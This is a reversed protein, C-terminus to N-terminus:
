SLEIPRQPLEIGHPLRCLFRSGGRRFSGVARGVGRAPSVSRRRGPVATVRQWSTAGRDTDADLRAMFGDLEPLSRVLRSRLRARVAESRPCRDGGLDHNSTEAAPAVAFTRAGARGAM